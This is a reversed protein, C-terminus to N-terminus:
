PEMVAGAAQDAVHQMEPLKIFYLWIGLLSIVIIMGVTLIADERPLRSKNLPRALFTPSEQTFEKLKITEPDALGHGCITCKVAGDIITARCFYCTLPAENEAPISVDSIFDM